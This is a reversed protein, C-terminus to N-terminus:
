AGPSPASLAEEAEPSADDGPLNEHRSDVAAAAFAPGSRAIKAQGFGPVLGVAQVDAPKIRTIAILTTDSAGVYAPM